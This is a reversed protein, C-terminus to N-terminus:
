LKAIPIDLRSCTYKVYHDYQNINEKISWTKIVQKSTTKILVQTMSTCSTLWMQNNYTQTINSM